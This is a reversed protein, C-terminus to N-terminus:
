SATITVNAPTAYGAATFAFVSYCYSSGSAATDDTRSPNPGVGGVQVGDQPTVPCSGATGRRVVFGAGPERTWSLNVVGTAPSAAGLGSIPRISNRHQGTVTDINLLGAAGDTVVLDQAGDGNLDSAAIGNPQFGGDLTDATDLTGDPGFRLLYIKGKGPQPQRRAYGTAVAIDSGMQGAVPLLGLSGLVRGLPLTRTASLTLSGDAGGLYVAVADHVPAPRVEGAVVVDPYGDGNVDGAELFFPQLNATSIIQPAEFGGMGDSDVVDIQNNEYDAAVIDPHGDGNMDAVAGGFSGGGPAVKLPSGFTGDGNGPLVQVASISDGLGYLLDPVGDGTVDTLALPQGDGGPPSVQGALTLGGHGDNLLVDFSNGGEVVIDPYGDGNLDGAIAALPTFARGLPLKEQGSFGGHGNGLMVTVNNHPLPSNLIVDQRGDQNLDAVVVGGPDLSTPLVQASLTPHNSGTQAASGPASLVLGGALMALITFGFRKTRM